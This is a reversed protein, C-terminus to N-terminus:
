GLVKHRQIISHFNRIGVQRGITRVPLRKRSYKCYALEIRKSLLRGFNQPVLGKKRLLALHLGLEGGQFGFHENLTKYPIFNSNPKKSIRILDRCIWCKREPHEPKGRKHGTLPRTIRKRRCFFSIAQRSVGYKEGLTNFSLTSEALDKILQDEVGKLKGIAGM